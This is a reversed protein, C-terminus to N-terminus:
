SPPPSQTVRPSQSPQPLISTKSLQRRPDITLRSNPVHDIPSPSVGRYKDAWATQPTAGSGASVHNERSFAESGTMYSAMTATAPTYQTSPQHLPARYLRPLPASRLWWTSFCSALCHLICHHDIRLLLSRVPVLLARQCTFECSSLRKSRIRRKEEKVRALVKPGYTM